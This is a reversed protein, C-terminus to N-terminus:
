IKNFLKELMESSGILNTYEENILIDRKKLSELVKPSKFYYYILDDSISDELETVKILENAYKKVNINEDKYNLNNIIATKSIVNWFTENKKLTIYFEEFDIAESASPMFPDPNRPILFDIYSLIINKIILNTYIKM